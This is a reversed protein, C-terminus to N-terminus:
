LGSWWLCAMAIVVCALAWKTVNWGMGSGRSGSGFGKSM